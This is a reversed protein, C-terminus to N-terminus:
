GEVGSKPMDGAHWEGETMLTVPEAPLGPENRHLQATLLDIAAAGLARPKQLVGPCNGWAPSFDLSALLIDRPLSASNEKMWHLFEINAAVIADPKKREIWPRIMPGSVTWGPMYLPAVRDSPPLLQQFALFGASWLMDVHRDMRETLVLGIRRCGRRRLERCALQVGGAHNHTVRHLRPRLLSYGLTVSAFAHLARPLHGHSLGSPGIVLGPIGRSHLIQALRASTMGSARLCFSELKYGLQEARTKAGAAFEWEHPLHAYDAPRSRMTIYALVCASEPRAARRQAMLASVLPNPRYGMERALAKVQERTSASVKPSDRLALAATTFHVGAKAALERITITRSM